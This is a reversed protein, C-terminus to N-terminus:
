FIRSHTMFSFHQNYTLHWFIEKPNPNLKKEIHPFFTENQEQSELCSFKYRYFQQSHFFTESHSFTDKSHNDLEKETHLHNNKVLNLHSLTFLNTLGFVDTPQFNQFPTKTEKDFCLFYNFTKM